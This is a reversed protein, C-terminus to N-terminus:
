PCGAFYAALFDFFDQSNTSGDRNFDASGGFFANLFDFFDQSNLVGNRNWDADCPSPRIIDLDARNIFGDNNLDYVSFNPGFNIIDVEGNVEGDEDFPPATWRALESRFVAADSAGISGDMDFDGLVEDCGM